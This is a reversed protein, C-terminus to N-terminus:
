ANELRDILFLVEAADDYDLAPDDALTADRSGNLIALIKPSSIKLWSPTDAAQAVQNLFQVAEETEGQQVSGLIQDALKGGPTQAYGGQQRYARYADRAQRWAARAAAPNGTATEIDHLINFANWVTGAHGLDQKCEIARQIERRAEDYRQLQVLRNALNNRSIGESKLDQLLYRIDAAERHFTVSEELRNMSCIPSCV